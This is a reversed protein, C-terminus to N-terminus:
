YGISIWNAGTYVPFRINFSNIQASGQIWPTEIWSTTNSRSRRVLVVLPNSTYSVPFVVNITINDQNNTGTDSWCITIGNNVHTGALM